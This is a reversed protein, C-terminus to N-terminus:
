GSAGTKISVHTLFVSEDPTMLCAFNHETGWWGPHVKM